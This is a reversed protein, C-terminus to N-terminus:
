EGQPSSHITTHRLTITFGAMQTMSIFEFSKLTCMGGGVEPYRENECVGTLWDNKSLYLYVNPKM